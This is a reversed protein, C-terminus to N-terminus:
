EIKILKDGYTMPWNLAPKIKKQSTKPKHGSRKWSGMGQIQSLMVFIVVNFVIKKM